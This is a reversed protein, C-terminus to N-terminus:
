QRRTLEMREGAPDSDKTGVDVTVGGDDTAGLCVVVGVVDVGVGVVANVM